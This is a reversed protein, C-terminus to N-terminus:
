SHRDREIALTVFGRALALHTEGLNRRQGGAAATANM